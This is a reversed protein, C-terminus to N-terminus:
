GWLSTACCRRFCATPLIATVGSGVFTLLALLRHIGGTNGPLIGVGLAGIGFLALPIAVSRRRCALCIAAAGGVVLVGATIMVTDFIMASPQVAVSHPPETGRLDSIQNNGTGYGAPYLSEATVIGM